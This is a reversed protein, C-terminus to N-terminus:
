PEEWGVTQSLVIHQQDALNMHKKLEDRDVIGLVVTILGRSACYLYVNQSIFGTDTASYFKKMEINDAYKGTINNYNSVFILNVPATETFHQRGAHARLDKEIIGKLAHNKHDYLFLGEKLTIYIDIEQWNVATPATRRGDPRNIGSAAWLLESITKLDLPKSSFNRASKRNALAKMLPMGGERDVDPLKTLPFTIKLDSMNSKRPNETRKKTDKTPESPSKKCDCKQSSCSLFLLVPLTFFIIKTM